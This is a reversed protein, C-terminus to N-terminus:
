PAAANPRFFFPSDQQGDQQERFERVWRCVTGYHVGFREAVEKMPQQDVFVARLTEYRQQVPNDPQLFFAQYPQSNM